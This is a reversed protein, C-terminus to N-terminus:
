PVPVTMALVGGVAGPGGFIDGYPIYLVGNDVTAGGTVTGGPLTITHLRAGSSKDYVYLESTSQTGAFV